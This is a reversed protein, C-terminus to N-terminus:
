QASLRRGLGDYAFNRINGLADTINTLDQLYDYAYHTAYTSTGNHEDVEILNGYADNTEDKPNGRADTITTKWNAYSTSVTGIANATTLVRQLPDYAYTIFLASTSTPTTKSSGGAFYPLSEQGLLNVNNYTKDTVKYTGADEASNRMQILRDLGDYYAYSDASNTPNMFDSEQVSVANATDTYSFVTSTVLSGPNAP